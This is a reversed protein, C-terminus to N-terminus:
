KAGPKVPKKNQIKHKSPQKAPPKPHALQAEGEPAKPKAKATSKDDTEVDRFRIM